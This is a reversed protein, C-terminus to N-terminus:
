VFLSHNCVRVALEHEIQRVLDLTTERERKAARTNKTALMSANFIHKARLRVLEKTLMDAYVSSM